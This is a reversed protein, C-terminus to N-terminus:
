YVLKSEGLNDKETKNLVELQQHQIIVKFKGNNDRFVNYYKRFAIQYSLPIMGDFFDASREYHARPSYLV